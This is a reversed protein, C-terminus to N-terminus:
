RRVSLILLAQRLIREKRRNENRIGLLILGLVPIALHLGLILETVM